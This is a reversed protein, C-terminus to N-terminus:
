PTGTLEKEWEDLRDGAQCAHTHCDVFGPMLVRGEADIVEADPPVPLEPAVAVIKDGEILVDGKPLVGLERLAPGRRPRVPGAPSTAPQALTLVRARRILLSM